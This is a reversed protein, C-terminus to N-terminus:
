NHVIQYSYITHPNIVFHIHIISGVKSDMMM